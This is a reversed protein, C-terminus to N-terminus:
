VAYGPAQYRAQAIAVCHGTIFSALAADCRGYTNVAARNRDRWAVGTTCVCMGHLRSTPGAGWAIGGTHGAGFPPLTASAESTEKARPDGPESTPTPGRTPDKPWVVLAGLHQTQKRQERASLGSAALAVAVHGRVAARTTGYRGLGRCSMRASGRARQGHLAVHAYSLSKVAPAHMETRQTPNAPSAQDSRSLMM